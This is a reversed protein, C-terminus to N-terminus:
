VPRKGEGRAIPGARHRCVNSMARLVGDNGRVVIVPEEAVVATFFQGAEGVQASNGVLQWTRGFVNRNEADLVAPDSYVRSPLTAAFELRPDIM